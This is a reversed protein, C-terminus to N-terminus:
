GSPPRTVTLDTNIGSWRSRDVQGPRKPTQLLGGIETYFRFYVGYTDRDGSLPLTFDIRSTRLVGSPLNVRFGVGVSSRWGSDVGYPVDQGWVRGLDGFVALGGDLIESQILPFRDELSFLMRRGGPFADESYGRVGVRGGATLQFPRDMSWSRAGSARAFLTHGGTESFRRFGKFEVESILDRWGERSGEGDWTYRGAAQLRGELVWPGTATAWFARVEAHVDKEDTDSGIGPLTPNVSFMVESGVQVDQLALVADLGNRLVFDINRFGGFLNLRTARMPTTQRSVEEIQDGLAPLLENFQQDEVIRIGRPGEPFELSERSVGGGLVLLRGPDGFRRALSLQAFRRLFPVMVHTPNEVGSTTYSFYDERYHFKETFAWKSREGTFPFTLEEEV